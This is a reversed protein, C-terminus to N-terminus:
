ASGGHGLGADHVSGREEGTNSPAKGPLPVIVFSGNEQAERIEREAEVLEAQTILGKRLMVIRLAADQPLGRVVKVHSQAGGNAARRSEKPGLQAMGGSEGVRTFSHQPRHEEHWKKTQRCIWCKEEDTM